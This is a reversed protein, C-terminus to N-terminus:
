SHMPASPASPASPLSPTLCVSTPMPPAPQPPSPVSIPVCIPETSTDSPGIMVPGGQTFSGDPQGSAPIQFQQGSISFSIQDQETLVQDAPPTTIAVKKGWQSFHLETRTPPQKDTPSQFVVEVPLGSGDLWVDVHGATAGSLDGTFHTAAVGDATGTGAETFKGKALLEKVLAAPDSKLLALVPSDKPALTSADVAFWSANPKTKTTAHWSKPISTYFSKGDYLYRNPIADADVPTKVSLTLDGQLTPAFVVSGDVTGSASGSVSGHVHVSKAAVVEAAAFQIAGGASKDSRTALGSDKSACGTVVAVAIAAGAVVAVGGVFRRGGRQASHELM